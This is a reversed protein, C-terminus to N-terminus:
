ITMTKGFVNFEDFFVQMFNNFYKNFTKTVVKQFTVLGNCLGFPMVNYANCELIFAINEQNKKGMKVQNYGSYGDRLSYMDHRTVIDLVLDLFPLPFPDKRTLTNLKRYDVCIKFKGNKKPVIVLPSLWQMTDIPYIFRADLLKNLDEKV